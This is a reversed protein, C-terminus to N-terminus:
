EQRLDLANALAVFDAVHLTDPRAGPDLGLAPLDLGLSELANALRKRRAAFAVRLVRDLAARDRVPRVPVRPILRVFRSQVKPRPVFANPAVDLLPEIECHYQAIVSLRGWSKNGPEAGLRDVVEAQLMFHMDRVPLGAACADFLRILLPTSINYPLNGVIRFPGDTGAPALDATLADGQLVTVGPLTERLPRILDRDIELATLRAGAAALATTLVGRGPGVELIPEGREVSIAAVIAEVVEGDALFHQGFRKRAQPLTDRRAVRLRGGLLGQRAAVAYVRPLEVRRSAFRRACVEPM